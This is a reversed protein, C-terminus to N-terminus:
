TRGHQWDELAAQLAEWAPRPPLGYSATNLYPAAPAWLARAEDLPLTGSLVRSGRDPLVLLRERVLCGDARRLPARGRAAAGLGPVPAHPRDAGEDHVRRLLRGRLVLPDRDAHRVDPLRVQLRLPLRGSDDARVGHPRELPAHLEGLAVAAARAQRLDLRGHVAAHHRARARGVRVLGEPPIHRLLLAPLIRDPLRGALDRAGPRPHRDDRRD